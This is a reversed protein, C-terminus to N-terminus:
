NISASISIIAYIQQSIHIYRGANAYECVHVCLCVSVGVCM